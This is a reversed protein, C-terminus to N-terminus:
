EWEVAGRRVLERVAAAVDEVAKRKPTGAGTASMLILTVAGGSVEIRGILDGHRNYALRATPPAPLAPTM